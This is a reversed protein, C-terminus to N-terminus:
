RVFNAAFIGETFVEKGAKFGVVTSSSFSIQIDMFDPFAAPYSSMEICM